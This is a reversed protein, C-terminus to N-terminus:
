ATTLQLAKRLENSTSFEDAPAAEQYEVLEVQHEVLAERVSAPTAYFYERRLNVLNVRQTAFHQHLMTEIGVADKSFFLAHVDFLFPVSADGLERVREMPNLRRTMGIKVVGDGFAGLNSIVYVYGARTNLANDEADALKAEAEELQEQVRHVGELDGTAQLQALVNSYHDVEKKQKAKLAEWERQAKATERAEARAEAEVQKQIALAELHRAALEVEQERLRHFASTIQLGIMTGRKAIQERSKELRARATDLNGAKVTKVCNEAEANYARLLLASLDRVFKDGERASGNFTFGSVTTVATKERLKNKIHARVTALEDALKVSTEAPHEYDYFGVNHRKAVQRVDLVDNRVVALQAEAAALDRKAKAISATLEADHREKALSDMVGYRNLDALMQANARYVEDAYQKLGKAPVPPAGMNTRYTKEASVSTSEASVGFAQRYQKVVNLLIWIVGAALLLSFLFGKTPLLAILLLLACAVWVHRTFGAPRKKPQAPEPSAGSSFNSM